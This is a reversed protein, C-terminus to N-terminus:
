LIFRLILAAILSGHMPVCARPAPCRRVHRRDSGRELLTWLEDKSNVVVETTGDVYVGRQLDVRVDLNNQMLGDFRM